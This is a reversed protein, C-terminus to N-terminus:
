KSKFKHVFFRAAKIQLLLFGIGAFLYALPLFLSDHLVGNTDISGYYTSQIFGSLLGLIIFIIGTLTINSMLHRM